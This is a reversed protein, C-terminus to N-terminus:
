QLIFSTFYLGGLKDDGTEEELLTKVLEFAKEKLAKRGDTSSVSKMNQETFLTRLADELMPLNLTASDIYSQDRSMLAIKIQLYRADQNSQQLFNIVISKPFRYYIAKTPGEEDDAAWSINPLLLGGILLLFVSIISPRM